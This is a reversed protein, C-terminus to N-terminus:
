NERGRVSITWDNSRQVRQHTEARLKYQLTRNFIMDPAEGFLYEGMIYSAQMPLCIITYRAFVWTLFSNKVGGPLALFYQQTYLYGTLIFFNVNMADSM